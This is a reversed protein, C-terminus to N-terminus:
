LAFPEAVVSKKLANMVTTPSIPLVRVTDRIGSGNLARAISQKKM